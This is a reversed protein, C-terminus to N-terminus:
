RHQSRIRRTGRDLLGSIVTSRFHAMLGQPGQEAIRFRSGGYRLLFQLILQNSLYLPTGIPQRLAQRRFFYLSGQQLAGTVVAANNTDMGRREKQVEAALSRFGEIPVLPRKEEQERLLVRLPQQRSPLFEAAACTLLLTGILM